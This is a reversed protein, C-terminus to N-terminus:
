FSKMQSNVTIVSKKAIIGYSRLVFAASFGSCETNNQYDFRNPRNLMYEKKYARKKALLPFGMILGDVLCVILFTRVIFDLIELIIM